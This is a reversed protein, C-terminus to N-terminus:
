KSDMKNPKPNKDDPNTSPVVKFIFTTFICFIIHLGASCRLMFSTDGHFICYCQVKVNFKNELLKNYPNTYESHGGFTFTAM